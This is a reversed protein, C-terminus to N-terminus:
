CTCGFKHFYSINPKRCKFLEYVTKDLMPRIYIMNQVYCTTNLAEVWFRKALNNEHIMTRAMEQLSRNNREVVGNQQPTRPSSFEHVIGHKEYFIEFQENEFEGGHDSKVKLIRLEKESQVQICFKSFVDYSDDKSKFFKVWSWRSYDDVIILGYKSGYLSVTSVPGFLDIHLLELLRSTSVIDKSKFSIKVIKGKQCASCLADSHYEIDPLGRVLQLKSLKSILRWNAHGLRKHWLWKKDSMSLLCLVKQDTLESFNIKYVNNRRKGKFLISQDDKNIVTCNNKEFMVDYGNDCFQSISLLNHRLGDVLWVNNISISSNGITGTGIIKGNQIGGFIVTGGEKMTLTLFMSREGTMYRSCGSDLYWSKQKESGKLCVQLMLLTQSLYGYIQPDEQTLGLLKSNGKLEKDSITRSQRRGFKLNLVKLRLIYSLLSETKKMVQKNPESRKLIQLKPAKSKSNNMVKTKQDKPKSKTMVKSSSAKPKSNSATNVKESESVFHIKLGEKTNDYCPKLIVEGSNGGIFGIGKKNNQNISYIMSAVKTRDIGTTIFEQLAVDQESLPKNDGKETMIKLNNYEHQLVDMEMKTSEHLKLLKIYRQKVRRLEFSQNEYHGLLEKLSDILESRTLKSYVETENESDTYSEADSSEKENEVTAVLGMAINAEDEADDKDSESENDLDEWTAMLSKKIQKKFKNSKFVPKKSKEKSKEKQLDPCDAILHGTKKCNFCGKQEEKRSNKHSSGRSM